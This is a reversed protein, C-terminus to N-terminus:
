DEIKELFSAIKSFIDTRDINYLGHQGQAYVILENKVHASDLKNQLRKSENVPVVYDAGGHFIITPPSQSSVYNIPSAEKYLAPDETYSVGLFNQLLSQSMQSFPHHHYLWALDSPGFLDVVAKIRDDTNEKYAKLLGLHAGASAGLIVIKDANIEFEDVKRDIFDIVADIDQLQAPFINRQAYVLRYNINVIAYGPLFKQLSGIYRDFEKKDGNAWSGGHILLLVKTSDKNRNAPLYIDLKQAAEKSYEVDMLRREPLPKVAVTGAAPKFSTHVMLIFFSIFEVIFKLM